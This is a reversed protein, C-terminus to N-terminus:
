RGRASRPNKSYPLPLRECSLYLSFSSSLQNLFRHEFLYYNDNMKSREIDGQELDLNGHHAETGVEDGQEADERLPRGLSGAM